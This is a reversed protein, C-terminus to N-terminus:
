EEKKFIVKTRNLIVTYSGSEGHGEANIADYGMLVAKAGVDYISASSQNAKQRAERVNPYKEFLERMDDSIKDNLRWIDDDSIRGHLFDDYNKEKQNTMEIIKEVVEQEESSMNKAENRMYADGYLGSIYDYEDAGKPLTLIKADKDLTLTETYSLPNGREENLFQYHLMENKIGESLTGTYDGACYMGQGYQAGGTSCDVYWKGNYLQERYADLTEQNPASYTRQAIFNSEQVYKDFTEADVVKPLGDFGQANITDEIAFEYEDKRREFTNSIDEGEIVTNNYRYGEKEEEQTIKEEEQALPEAYNDTSRTPTDTPPTYNPDNPTYPNQGALYKYDQTYSEKMMQAIDDQKTIPDSYSYHSEKWKEYEDEVSKSMNRMSTDAEHGKLAPVLTCRCNYIMEPEGSPDAPYELEYGDIKFKEGVKVRQGDLLRHEHRTRDDLTAMWEQELEIGMDEARQYADVRGANEIGTTMTRANRISAKRDSDGVTKSLRTAINSISEGQLLSQIMCSQVQKKDWALQKGEAIRQATRKGYKHYITNEDNFLRQVTDRDYLTYTTDLHATKEVQFTGYNHNIAYVEPMTDGTMSRALQSANTLDQAITDRMESWREGVAIQGVRWQEYEKQTIKGDKVAQAKIKDKTEFRKLYDDLKEAIEKEAQSYEKTIQKELDELVKDTEKHGADTRKAM